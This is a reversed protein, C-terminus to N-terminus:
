KHYKYSGDSQRTFTGGNSLRLTNVRGESNVSVQIKDNAKFSSLVNNAGNAKTMANADRIDLGNTRFVQFLSVGAPVTLTKNTGNSAVKAPTAATTSPKAEVVPAKTKAQEAAAKAKKETAIKAQEKAKAEALKAKEAAIRAQESVKAKEAAIRAQEVAKAKEAAIRAQEEAKEKEVAVKTQDPQQMTENTQVAQQPLAETAVPKQETTVSENSVSPQNNTATSELVATENKNNEEVAKNPDLSQFEIPMNNSNNAQIEEVTDNSPKLWILALLVAIAGTIAIFLRRHKTPLKQMIAWNEPNKRNPKEQQPVIAEVPTEVNETEEVVVNETAVSEIPTEVMTASADVENEEVSTSQALTPNGVLNVSPNSPNQVASQMSQPTVINTTAPGFTPEKRVAFQTHSTDKKGFLGTMKYLISQEAKPAPSQNSDFDLESQNSPKNNQEM